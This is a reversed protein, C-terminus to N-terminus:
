AGNAESVLAAVSFGVRTGEGPVSGVVVKTGANEELSRVILASIKGEPPWTTGPPLGTGDDAIVVSCRDDSRLCRLTITGSERGSFAHKFANTMLENVVLGAPMAVNISVRCSEVKMDLLIGDRGHSRMAATAISSLYEGLDVVPEDASASLADYLISLAEIRSAITEFDPTRGQRANRAELRVLATVIQLSNRVRHQIERLLMDKDRLQRGLEDRDVADRDTVHILVVLRFDGDDDGREVKTVYAEVSSSGAGDAAISVRFSGLFEDGDAIARGLPADPEGGRGIKDLISWRRGKIAEPDIATLRRFADNAYIIREEDRVRKAVVIGVPLHDLFARFHESQLAEIFEPSALLTDIQEVDTDACLSGAINEDSGDDM